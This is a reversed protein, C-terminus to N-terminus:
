DSHSKKKGQLQMTLTIKRCKGHGSPLCSDVVYVCLSAIGETVLVFRLADIRRGRNLEEMVYVKTTHEKQETRAVSAQTFAM